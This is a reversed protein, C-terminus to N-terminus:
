WGAAQAVVLKMVRRGEVGPGNETEDHVISRKKQRREANPFDQYQINLLRRRDRRILSDM